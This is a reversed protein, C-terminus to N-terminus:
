QQKKWSAGILTWIFLLVENNQNENAVVKPDIDRM